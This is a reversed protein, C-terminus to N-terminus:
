GLCVLRGAADRPLLMRSHESNGLLPDAVVTTLTLPEVRLGFFWQWGIGDAGPRLGCEGVIAGSAPEPTARAYVTAIGPTALPELEVTFPFRWSRRAEALAQAPTGHSDLALRLESRGKCSLKIRSRAAGAILEGALVLDLACAVLDLLGECRMALTTADRRQWGWTIGAQGMLAAAQVDLRPSAGDLAKSWAEFLRALGARTATQLGQWAAQRAPAPRAVGDAEFRLQAQPPPVADANPWTMPLWAPHQVQLLWQTSPHVQLGLTFAGFSAGADRQGCSTVEISQLPAPAVAGIAADAEAPGAADAAYLPVALRAADRGHWTLRRIGDAHVVEAHRRPDCVAHMQLKLNLRTATGSRLRNGLLALAPPPADVHSWALDPLAPSPAAVRQWGAASHRYEHRDAPEVIRLDISAVDCARVPQWPAEAEFVARSDALAAVGSDLRAVGADFEALTVSGPAAASVGPGQRRRLEERSRHRLQHVKVGPRRQPDALIERAWEFGPKEEFGPGWVCWLGAYGALDVGHEIAHRQGQQLAAEVFAAFREALRQTVAPFVQALVEAAGAARRALALAELREFQEISLRLM